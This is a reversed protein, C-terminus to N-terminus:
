PSQPRDDRGKKNWQYWVLIMLCCMAHLLHHKKTEKDYEAGQWWATVHRLLADYYISWDTGKKWDDPEREKDTGVYLGAEMVETMGRLVRFSLLSWRPKGTLDKSARLPKLGLYDLGPQVWQLEGKKEM